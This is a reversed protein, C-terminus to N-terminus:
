NPYGNPNEKKASIWATSEQELGVSTIKAVLITISGIVQDLNVSHQDILDTVERLMKRTAAQLGLTTHGCGPALYQRVTILAGILESFDLGQAEGVRQALVQLDKYFNQSSMVRESTRSM